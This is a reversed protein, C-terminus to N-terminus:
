NYKSEEQYKDFVERAFKYKLCAFKIQYVCFISVAPFLIFGFIANFLSLKFGDNIFAKFLDGYALILIYALFVYILLAAMKLFLPKSNIFVDTTLNKLIYANRASTESKKYAVFEIKDGDRLIDNDSRFFYQRDGIRFSTELISTTFFSLINPKDLFMKVDKIVGSVVEMDDVELHKRWWGEIKKCM